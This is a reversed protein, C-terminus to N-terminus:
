QSPEQNNQPPMVLGEGTCVVKGAQNVAMTKLRVWKTRAIKESVEATVTITDGFFVPAKFRTKVELAITGVGPLITGVVMSMLAQVLGGHVIRRGFPTGKAFERDIHVPNFDGSLGAYLYVDTETITKSFSAAMGVDLQEFTYGTGRHPGVEMTEGLNAM